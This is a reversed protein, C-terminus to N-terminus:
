QGLLGVCRQAGVALMDTQRYSLHAVAFHPVHVDTRASDHELIEQTDIACHLCAGEGLFRRNLLSKSVHFFASAAEM